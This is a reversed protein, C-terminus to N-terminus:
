WRNGNLISAIVPFSISNFRWGEEAEIWQFTYDVYYQHSLSSHLTQYGYVGAEGAGLRIESMYGFSSEPDSEPLELAQLERPTLGSAGATGDRVALLYGYWGRLLNTRAVDWQPGEAPFYRRLRSETGGMAEAVAADGTFSDYDTLHALYEDSRLTEPPLIEEAYLPLFEDLSSRLVHKEARIGQGEVAIAIIVALVILGLLLLGINIRRMKRM